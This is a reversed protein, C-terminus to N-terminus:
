QEDGEEATTDTTDATDSVTAATDADDASPKTLYIVFSVDVDSSDNSGGKNATYIVCREVIPDQELGAAIQNLEALSAGSVELTMINESLDWSRAVGGSILADQVLKMIRVRDVRSMEESNMGEYTYHAYEEETAANQEILRNTEDLQATLDKVRANAKVLGLVPRVILLLALVIVLLTGVAVTTIGKRTSLYREKKPVLNITTKTPMKGRSKSGISVEKNLDLKLQAM